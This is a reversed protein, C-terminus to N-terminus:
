VHEHKCETVTHTWILSVQSQMEAEL